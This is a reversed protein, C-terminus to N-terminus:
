VEIAQLGSVPHEILRVTLFALPFAPAFQIEIILRGLDISEATNLGAGTNVQFAQGPTAGTFAGREFLTTMVGEFFYQVEQQFVPSNSEFVYRMGERRLLRKLLSILRRINIPRVQPDLSLTDASMPMFGGPEMQVLNVGRYVLDIHRAEALLPWTALVRYLAKNAPAIWAGRDLTRRAIMGCIAGVPPRFQPSSRGPLQGAGGPSTGRSPTAGIALWPHYLAGYGLAQLEDFSLVPIGHLETGTALEGGPELVAIHQLAEEAKFSEPLGLVALIDGRAAACRLVARHIAPAISEFDLIEEPTRMEWRLPPSPSFIMTNSWPSVVTTGQEVREARVRYYTRRGPDPAVVISTEAPLTVDVQSATLFIPDVAEEIRYQEAGDVVTWELVVELDEETGAEALSLDPAELQLGCPDFAQDVLPVHLTVSWASTDTENLARVRLYSDKECFEKSFFRIRTKDGQYVRQEESFDPHSSCVVEFELEEEPHTWTLRYVQNRIFAADLNRPALLPPPPAFGREEWGPHVADPVSLLTVEDNFYLSHIGDLSENDFYVVQKSRADLSGASADLLRDDLFLTPGYATIGERGVHSDYAESESRLVSAAYVKAAVFPMGLPMTVPAPCRPGALDYRPDAVDQELPGIANLAKDPRPERKEFFVADVPLRGWFRTPTGTFVPEGASVEDACLAALEDRDASTLDLEGSFGLAEKRNVIHDDNDWLVIAFSLRELVVPLESESIAVPVPQLIEALQIRQAEVPMSSADLEDEITVDAISAWVPVEDGTGEGRLRGELIRGPRITGTFSTDLQLYAVPGAGAINEEAASGESARPDVWVFSAEPLPDDMGPGGESRLVGDVFSFPEPGPLGASSPSDWRQFAAAIRVDWNPTGTHAEPRPIVTGIYENGDESTMRLLDGPSLEGAQAQSVGLAFVDGASPVLRASTAIAEVNLVTSVKFQEAWDGPCRARVHMPSGTEADVVGPLPFSYHVPNDAVRVVWCRRGGQEFFAEVAAGLHATAMARRGSDWAIVLDEGFIDRFRAVNEIAVPTHLPGKEAFGVFGAIDMRPLVENTPPAEVQFYIGPLRRQPTSVLNM